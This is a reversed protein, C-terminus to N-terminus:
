SPWGPPCGTGIGVTRSHVVSPGFRMDFLSKLSMDGQGPTLEPAGKAVGRGLMWIASGVERNTIVLPEIPVLEPAMKRLDAPEPSDHLLTHPTTPQDLSDRARDGQPTRRPPVFPRSDSEPPPTPLHSLTLIYERTGSEPANRWKWVKKQRIIKATIISGPPQLNHPKAPRPRRGSPSRHRNQLHCPQAM